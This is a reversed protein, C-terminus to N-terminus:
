VSSRRMLAAPLDPQARTQVDLVGEAAGLALACVRQQETLTGCVRHQETLTIGCVRHQETLTIGCM